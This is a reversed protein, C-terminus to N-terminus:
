IRFVLYLNLSHLYDVSFGSRCGDLGLNGAFHLANHCCPALARMESRHEHAVVTTRFGVNLILHQGAFLAPELGRQYAELVRHALLLQELTDVLEVLIFVYVAEDHLQRQRAMDVFLADRLGDVVTLIYVAEM